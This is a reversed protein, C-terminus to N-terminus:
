QLIMNIRTSKQHPDEKNMTFAPVKGDKVDFLWLQFAMISQACKNEVLYARFIEEDAVTVHERIIGDVSEIEEHSPHQQRAVVLNYEGGKSREISRQITTTDM